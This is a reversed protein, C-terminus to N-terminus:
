YEETILSMWFKDNISRFHSYNRSNGVVMGSDFIILGQRIGQLFTEYNFCGGFCISTFINNTMKCIFFGNVNFKEQIHREMKERKWIAIVVDRKLWDPFTHKIERQDNNFSYAACIDLNSDIFLTQGYENWYGYKPVCSGSWSYRNNKLINQHGFFQIFDKRSMVLNEDLYKRRKLPTFAYESASFDGFSIKQSYKKMEYGDIDPSNKSNHSLCMRTELWHGISGCHIAETIVIVKDKVNENFLQIIKEKSM